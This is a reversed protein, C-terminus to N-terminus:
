KVVEKKKRLQRWRAGDWADEETVAIGQMDEQVANRFTRWAVNNIRNKYTKYGQGLGHNWKM